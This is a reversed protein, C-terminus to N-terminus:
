LMESEMQAISSDLADVIADIDTETVTLPPTLSVGQGTTRCYVGDCQERGRMATEDIREDGPIDAM